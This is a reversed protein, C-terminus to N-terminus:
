GISSANLDSGDIMLLVHLLLLHQYKSKCNKNIAADLPQLRSTTNKLLFVILINSFKGKLDQHHSTVNDLLLLIKRNQKVLQKNLRAFIKTMIETTMWAKPNSFYPVGAPMTPDRIGKSCRPQSGRGIVFPPEKSGAANAFFAVTIREKSKKRRKM